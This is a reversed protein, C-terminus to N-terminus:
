VLITKAILFYKVFNLFLRKYYFFDNFITNFNLDSKDSKNNLQKEKIYFDREGNIKDCHVLVLSGKLTQLNKKAKVIVVEKSVIWRNERLKNCTKM